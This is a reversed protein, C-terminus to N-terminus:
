GLWGTAVCSVTNCYLGGVALKWGAICYRNCYVEGELLTNCYVLGKLGKLQLVINEKCYLHATAWKLKEACIKKKM